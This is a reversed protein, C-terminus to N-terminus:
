SIDGVHSVTDSFSTHFGSMTRGDRIDQPWEGSLTHEAQPWSYAGCARLLPEHSDSSLHKPSLELPGCPAGEGKGEGLLSGPVMEWM